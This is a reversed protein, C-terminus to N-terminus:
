KRMIETVKLVNVRVDEIEKVREREITRVYDSQSSGLEVTTGGLVLGRCTMATVYVGKYANGDAM